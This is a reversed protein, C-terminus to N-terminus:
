NITKAWIYALRRYASPATCTWFRGNGHSSGASSGHSPPLTPPQASGGSVLGFQHASLWRCRTAQRAARPQVALGLEPPPGPTTVATGNAGWRGWHGPSCSARLAGRQLLPAAPSPLGGLGEPRSLGEQGLGHKRRPGRYCSQGTIPPM